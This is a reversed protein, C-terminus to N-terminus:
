PHFLKAARASSRQCIWQLEIWLKFWQQIQAASAAVLACAEAVPMGDRLACLIRYAAPELRKYYLMNEHRHVAVFVTQKKPRASRSKKKGKPAAEMANSTEGRLAGRKKVAISYDDVPYALELLALYPQLGVRLTLPNARAIEQATLVSTSPGDFAVIQAWEFRAMDLALATHPRTWAPEEAIFQALRSCLNRLSFSRSPYKALYAEALRFFKRHGLVAYLGPHDAYICDLLRFWYQRNYIEIRELGTLRNNPKSFEAVVDAMPRGDIWKKQMRSAATLPRVLVHTMLRQLMRLDETSQLRRPAHRPPPKLGTPTVAAKM